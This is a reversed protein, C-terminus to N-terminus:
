KELIIEHIADFTISNNIYWMDNYIIADVIQMQVLASVGDHFGNNLYDESSINLKSYLEPTKLTM